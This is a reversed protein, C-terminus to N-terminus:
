WLGNGSSIEGMIGRRERPDALSEGTRACKVFPLMQVKLTKQIMRDITERYIVYWLQMYVYKTDNRDLGVLLLLGKRIEGM